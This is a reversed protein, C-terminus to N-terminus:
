KAGRTWVGVVIQGHRIAAVEPSFGPRGNDEPARAVYGAIRLVTPRFRLACVLASEDGSAGSHVSGRLTGWVVIDGGAVIEAGPNVDGFVVVHGPHELRMGSRLTRRVFLAERREEERGVRLSEELAVVPRGKGRRAEVPEGYQGPDTTGLLTKLQIGHRSLLDKLAKLQDLDLTREGIALTVQAGQFFQEGPEIRQALAVLAEDFALADNLTILLGTKTGKVAVDAVSLVWGKPPNLTSPQTAGAGENM